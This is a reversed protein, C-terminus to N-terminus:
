LDWQCKKSGQYICGMTATGHWVASLESVGCLQKCVKAAFRYTPEDRRVICAWREGCNSWTGHPLLASLTYGNRKIYVHLTKDLGMILSSSEPYTIDLENLSDPYAGNQTYYVDLLNYLLRLTTQAEAAYSKQVALQYQPLAVAALIGIILVVVLLEVLTFGGTPM